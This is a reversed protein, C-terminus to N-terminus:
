SPKNVGDRKWVTTMRFISDANKRQNFVTLHAQYLYVKDRDSGIAPSARCTPATDRRLVAERATSRTAELRKSNSCGEEHHNVYM